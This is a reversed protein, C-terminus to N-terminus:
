LFEVLDGERVRIFQGPVTGGFTWFTYQVGPAIEKVLERVEMNVIVKTPHRRTIPPPVEPAHTLAGEEEGRLVTGSEGGGCASLLLVCLAAGALLSYAPRGGNPED